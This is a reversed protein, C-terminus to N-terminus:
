FRYNKHRRRCRIIWSGNNNASRAFELEAATRKLVIGEVISKATFGWARGWDAPAIMDALWLDHGVDSIFGGYGSVKGSPRGCAEILRAHRAACSERVLHRGDSVLIDFLYITNKVSRDKCHLLESDLVNWRGTAFRESVAQVMPAPPSWARHIEGHRNWFEVKGDPSVFILNRTGNLKLQARWAGGAYNRTDEFPIATKPRPPHIYTMTDYPIAM